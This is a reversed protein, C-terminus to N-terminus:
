GDTTVWLTLYKTIRLGQINIARNLGSKAGSINPKDLAAERRFRRFKSALMFVDVVVGRVERRERVAAAAIPTSLMAARARTPVPDDADAVDSAAAAGAAFAASAASAV